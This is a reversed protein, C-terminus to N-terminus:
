TFTKRRMEYPSLSNRFKPFVVTQGGFFKEKEKGANLHCGHTGSPFVSTNRELFTGIFRGISRGRTEAQSGCKGLRVTDRM